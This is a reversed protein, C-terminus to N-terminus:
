LRRIWDKLDKLDKEDIKKNDYLSAVLSKVSGDYMDEIFGNAQYSKYEDKSINPSYYNVRKEKRVRLVNKDVLRKALTLITTHKWFNDEGLKEIIDATTVEGEENWIIEMIEYEADSIKIIDM